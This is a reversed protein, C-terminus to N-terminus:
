IAVKAVSTATASQPDAKTVPETVTGGLQAITDTVPKLFAQAAGGVFAVTLFDEFTGFSKGFYFASLSAVTGTTVSLALVMFDGVFRRTQGLEVATAASITLVDANDRWSEASSLEDPLEAQLTAIAQGVATPIEDLKDGRQLKLVPWSDSSERGPESVVWTDGKAGIHALERYVGALRKSVGLKKIAKADAAELLENKAEILAPYIDEKLSAFDTATINSTPDATLSMLARHWVEYRALVQVLETWHAITEISEKAKKTRITAEGVTLSGPGRSLLGSATLAIAPQRDIALHRSLAHALKKLAGDLDSLTQALESKGAAASQTIRKPTTESNASGGSKEVPGPLAASEPRQSPVAPTGLCRVDADAADLSKVIKAYADSTTDFYWTSKAYANIAAKAETAYREVDAESPPGIDKLETTSSAEFIAGAAAYREVLDSHRADLMKKVRWHRFYFTPVVILLAGLLVAAVAWPWWVTLKLQVKVTQKDDASGTPTLTGEYKGIRTAGKVKIPLLWVGESATEDPAGDVVVSAVDGGNVLNGIFAGKEAVKITKGKPVALALMSRGDISASTALWKWKTATLAITTAAGQAPAVTSEPGAVSVALRAIGSGASTVVLEGTFPGAGIGPKAEVTVSAKDCSGPALQSRDGVLTIVKEKPVTVSGNKFEFGVLGWTLKRAIVASTNCLVATNTSAASGSELLLPGQERFALGPEPQEAKAAHSSAPSLAAVLAVLAVFAARRVAFANLSFHRAGGSLVSRRM